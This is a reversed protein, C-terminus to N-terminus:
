RRAAAATAGRPPTVSARGAGIRNRGAEKAGYLARDAVAIAEELAGGAPRSAVGASITVVLGPAHTSWDFADVAAKFREIVQRGGAADMGALVIMFEDGGTRVPLDDARCHMRVLRAVAQLVADGVAHSHADNIDKFRDVDVLAVTLPKGAADSAALVDAVRADLGRRNLLGTLPDHQAVLALAAARHALEAKDEALTKAEERYRDAQRTAHQFDIWLQGARTAHQRATSLQAERVAHFRKYHALAGAPDGNDECLESLAACTEAILNKANIREALESAETYHRRALAADRPAALRGLELLTAAYVNAEDLQRALALTADLAAAAEDDRGLRRLLAGSLGLCHAEDYRNGFRRALLLAQQVLEHGTAYDRAAADPSEAADGRHLAVLSQNQQLKTLLSDDRQERALDVGTALHRAADDIRGAALLASGLSNHLSTQLSALGHERASELARLLSAVADEQAGLRLQCLGVGALVTAVEAFADQEQYARATQLLLDLAHMCDALYFHCRAVAHLAATELRPDGLTGALTRAECALALGRKADGTRALTTALDVLAAVHAAPDAAAAVAQELRVLRDAANM